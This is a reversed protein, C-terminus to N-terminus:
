SEPRGEQHITKDEFNGRQDLIAVLTGTMESTGLGIIPTFFFSLFSNCWATKICGERNKIAVGGWCKWNRRMLWFKTVYVCQSAFTAQIYQRRVLILLLIFMLHCTCDM